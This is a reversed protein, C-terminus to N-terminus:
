MLGLNWFAEIIYKHHFKDITTVIVTDPKTVKLMESFNKFSAIDRKSKKLCGMRQLNVDSIGVLEAVDSFKKVIPVAFMEIGRNGCGVIVYKKTYSKM